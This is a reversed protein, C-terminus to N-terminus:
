NTTLVEYGAEAALPHAAAVMFRQAVLAERAAAVHIVCFFLFAAKAAKPYISVRADSNFTSCCWSKSRWFTPDRRAM